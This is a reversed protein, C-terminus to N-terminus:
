SEDTLPDTGRDWVVERPKETEVPRYIITDSTLKIRDGPFNGVYARSLAYESPLPTDDDFAYVTIETSPWIEMLETSWREYSLTEGHCAIYFVARTNEDALRQAAYIEMDELGVPVLSGLYTTEWPWEESPEDWPIVSMAVSCVAACQTTDLGLRTEVQRICTEEMEKQRESTWIQGTTVNVAIDYQEEDNKKFTGKVYDSMVIVSADPRLLDVHCELLEASRGLLAVYQKLMRRGKRLQRRQESISCGSLALLMSLTLLLCLLRKMKQKLTM